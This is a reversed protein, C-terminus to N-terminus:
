KGHSKFELLYITRWDCFNRMKLKKKVIKLDPFQKLFQKLFNNRWCLIGENRYNYGKCIPRFYEYGYIYQKSCRHIESMAKSLDYEPHIHILVGCTFVLDFENDEFPLNLLSAQQFNINSHKRKAEKIALNCIDIGHLNYYGFEQLHNLQNGVNCGVELIKSDKPIHKLFDGTVKQENSDLNRKTYEKGFKGSWAETTKM